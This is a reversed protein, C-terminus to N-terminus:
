WIVLFSFFPDFDVEFDVAFFATLIKKKKIKKKPNEKKRRKFIVGSYFVKGNSKFM